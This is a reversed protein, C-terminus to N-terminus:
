WLWNRRPNRLLEREILIMQGAPTDAIMKEANYKHVSQRDTTDPRYYRVRNDRALDRYPPRLYPAVDAPPLKGRAQWYLNSAALNAHLSLGWERITGTALLLVIVVRLAAPRLKPSAHKALLFYMVFTPLFMGRMCYNNTGVSEVLFTSAYFALSGWYFRREFPSFRRYFVLLLLPIGWYEVLPVLLLYGALSLSADLWALSSLHYRVPAFWVSSSEVRNTFLFLPALFVGALLLWSRTRWSRKWLWLLKRPAIFLVPIVAWPSSYFASALLLGLLLPKWVARRFRLTRALLGALVVAYFAFFHHIVWYMGTFFSSIQRQSSSFDSQWIEAHGFPRAAYFLWDLGSFFTCLFLFTRAQRAAPFTRHTFEVLSLLILLQYLANGLVVTDKLTLVPIALKFFAMPYLAAYYFSLLYQQNAFHQLPYSGSLTMSVLEALRAADDAQALVINGPIWELLYLLRPSVLVAWFALAMTILGKPVPVAAARVRARGLWLGFGALALPYVLRLSTARLSGGNLVVLSAVNALAIVALARSFCLGGLLGRLGSWARM